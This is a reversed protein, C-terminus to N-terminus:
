HVLFRQGARRVGLLSGMFSKGSWETVQALQGASPAGTNRDYGRCVSQAHSRYRRIVLTEAVVQVVVQESLLRAM